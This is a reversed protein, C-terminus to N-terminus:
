DAPAPTKPPDAKPKPPEAQRMACQPHIGARSYVPQHCVPCRARASATSHIQKPNMPTARYTPGHPPRVSRRTRV